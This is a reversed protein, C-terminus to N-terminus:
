RFFNRSAGSFRTGKEDNLFKHHCSRDFVSFFFAEKKIEKRELPFERDRGVVSSFDSLSVSLSLFPAESSEEEM